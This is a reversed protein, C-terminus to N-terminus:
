FKLQTSKGLIVRFCWVGVGLSWVEFLNFHKFVKLVSEVYINLWYRSISPTQM